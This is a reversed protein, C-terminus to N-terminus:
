FVIKKGYMLINEINKYILKGYENLIGVNINDLNEKPKLYYKKNHAIIDCKKLFDDNIIIDEIEYLFNTEELLIHMDVEDMYYDYYELEEKELEIVAGINKDNYIKVLYLGNIDINIKEKINLFLEKFYEKINDIDDLKKDILLEKNLYILINDDIISFKM